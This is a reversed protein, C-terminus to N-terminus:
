QLSSPRLVGLLQARTRSRRRGGCGGRAETTTAGDDDLRGRAWSRRGRRGRHAASGGLGRGRAIADGARQIARCRRRGGDPTTLNLFSGHRESGAPGM